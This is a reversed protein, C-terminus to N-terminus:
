PALVWAGRGDNGVGQSEWCLWKEDGFDNPKSRPSLPLPLTQITSAQGGDMM